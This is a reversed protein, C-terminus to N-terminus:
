VWSRLGLIYFHICIWPSGQFCLEVVEERRLGEKESCFVTTWLDGSMSHMELGDISCEFSENLYQYVHCCGLITMKM